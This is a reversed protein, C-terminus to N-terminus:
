CGDPGSGLIKDEDERSLARGMEAAPILPWVSKELHERLGKRGPAKGSMAQLRARREELAKRIAETKTEHTLAAVEAALLEVSANKINLAM